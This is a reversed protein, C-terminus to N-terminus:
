GRSAWWSFRGSTQVATLAAPQVKHGMPCSDLIVAHSLQAYVQLGRKWFDCETVGPRVMSQM